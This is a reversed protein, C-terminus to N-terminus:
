AVDLLGPQRIQPLRQSIKAGAYIRRGVYYEGVVLAGREIDLDIRGRLLYIADGLKSAVGVDDCKIGTRGGRQQGAISFRGVDDNSSCLINRLSFGSQCDAFARVNIGKGIQVLILDRDVRLCNALDFVGVKRCFCRRQRRRLYQTLARDNRHAVRIMLTHTLDGRHDALKGSLLVMSESVKKKEHNTRLRSSSSTAIYYKSTNPRCGASFAFTSTIPQIRRMESASSVEASEFSTVTPIASTCKACAGPNIQRLGPSKSEKSSACPKFPM